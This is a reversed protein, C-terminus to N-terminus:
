GQYRASLAILLQKHNYILEQNITLPPTLIPQFSETQENIRSYNLSSNNNLQFRNYIRYGITFEAGARFSQQVNNTLALGNPGFKGNLVIEDKFDMYYLNFAFNFRESQHRIGLEHDLVYEPQRIFLVTNGISDILLDDNGGSLDTRTPERGTRGLSYYLVSKKNVSYSVGAKPNLFQWKLQEFSATGKYDFNTHRYQIDAFMSFQRIAYSARSFASFENKYGNNQYLRGLTLETGTHRRNYTNAHIGTTWSLNRKSFTYNSFIGTFNSRFAYNYLETTSPLGLFSNLNFDNNGDLFTYYVTTQITSSQTLRWYNQVQALVQLFQDHENENVNTRRDKAILSDPVGLWALQNKQYGAMLNFKWTSKNQFLGASVFVSRSNNSSHHKYGDSYLQSARVYIAKGNRIGSNYEGFIRISNYSGYDLGITSYLTDALDPSFLQVSGGYSAVGNKTTGVGRQIQIRSLSNFIDPYNSFYAGQDEPENIPVGDFTMNIRTQDIGRLRFYSYGQTSGADSYVSMSPTEAFVGSPAA